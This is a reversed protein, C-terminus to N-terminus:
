SPRSYLTVKRYDVSVDFHARFAELYPSRGAPEGNISEIVIRRLPQVKRTMMVHFFEFCSPLDPNGPSLHFDLRGGKQQSVLVLVSGRYVLHIGPARRPLRGKLSGLPIGCLSAPDIASVWYTQDEGGMSQLWRFAEPSIFQRGLIGRFFYGTLIEGSLEMLRL